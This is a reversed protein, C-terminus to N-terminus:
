SRASCGASRTSRTTPGTTTTRGRASPRPCASGCTRSSRAPRWSGAPARTSAWTPATTSPSYRVGHPHMTVAQRLKTDANRFHVVLLDGVEAYLTPGPMDVGGKPAAFGATMEQYVYARFTTKGGIKRGHWDDRGTPVINWGVTRAQIWYERRVGGPAPEPTPFQAARARPARRRARARPRRGRRAKAAAGPKALVVQEGGITCLLAHGAGLQFFSRRSTLRDSDPM